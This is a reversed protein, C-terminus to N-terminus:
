DLEINFLQEGMKAIPLMMPRGSSKFYKENIEALMKKDDDKLNPPYNKKGPLPMDPPPAKGDKGEKNLGKEKEKAKEKMTREIDMKTLEAPAADGSMLDGLSVSPDTTVFVMTAGEPLNTAQFSGDRGIPIVALPRPISISKPDFNEPDKKPMQGMLPYLVVFGFPVPKGQYTVKGKITTSGKLEKSKSSCAGLWIVLFGLFSISVGRVLNFM